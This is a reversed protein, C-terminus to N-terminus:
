SQSGISRGSWTCVWPAAGPQCSVRSLVAGGPGRLLALQPLREPVMREVFPPTSPVVERFFRDHRAPWRHRPHDHTWRAVRHPLSSVLVARTAGFTDLATLATTIDVMFPVLYGGRAPKSDASLCKALRWTGYERRNTSPMSSDPHM